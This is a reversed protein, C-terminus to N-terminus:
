VETGERNDALHQQLNTNIVDDAYDTGHCLRGSIPDVVAGNKFIVEDVTHTIVPGIPRPLQSILVLDGVASIGKEDM